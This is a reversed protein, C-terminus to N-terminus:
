KNYEKKVEDRAQVMNKLKQYASERSINRLGCDPDILIDKSDFYNLAKEIRKKIDVVSEVRESKSDICGYGIKKDFNYEYLHDLLTPNRTFEHDLIDVPFDLLGPYLINVDGCVHMAVTKDINNTIVELADKAEEMDVNGAALIPEDIQILVAGNDCLKKAEIALVNALDFLLSKRVGYYANQVFSALTNPGTIVGKVLAKSGAVERAYRFDEGLIDQNHQIRGTVRIVGDAEAIGSIKNTFIRIMDGRTQGDSIIEVGADVQDKVAREISKLYPDKGYMGGMLEARSPEAPYSGVVTTILDWYKKPM